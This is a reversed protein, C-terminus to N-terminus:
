DADLRLSSAKEQLDRFYDTDTIEAVKRAARAEDIEIKLQQVQAKLKREREFVERAMRQFVRALQGLADDRAAVADLSHADFTEAEVAGAADVVKGVQELYELQLDHLRKEALSANLRARLVAANFPKPLYDAAGIEICRVVSDLEDVSSIVIVPLHRLREDAKIRELTEYGDLEPMELDLLIVDVPVETDAQLLELAEVGHEATVPMHGDAALAKTLVMRNVQSDDVVLIRGGSTGSVGVSRRAAGRARGPVARVGARDPGRARGRRRTRGDEGARRARPVAGRIGGRGLQGREVQAHAGGPPARGHTRERALAAADRADGSRGRPVHGRARRRVGRRRARAPQRSRLRRSCATRQRRESASPRGERAGRGAGRAPDAERRLRGNGRRLM